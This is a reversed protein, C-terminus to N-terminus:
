KSHRDDFHDKIIDCIFRVIAIFLQLVLIVLAAIEYASIAIEGKHLVGM